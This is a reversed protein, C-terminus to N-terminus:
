ILHFSCFLLRILFCHMYIGGGTEYQWPRVVSAQREETGDEGPGFCGSGTTTM